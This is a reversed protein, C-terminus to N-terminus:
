ENLANELKKNYDSSTRDLKRAMKRGQEVSKNGSLYDATKDASKMAESQDSEGCASLLAATGACLLLLALWRKMM